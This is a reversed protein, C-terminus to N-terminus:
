PPLGRPTYMQLSWSPTDFSRVCGSRWLFQTPGSSGLPRRVSPSLSNAKPAFEPYCMQLTNTEKAGPVQSFWLSSHKHTVITSGLRVTSHIHVCVHTHIRTCMHACTAGTHISTPAHARCVHTRICAHAHVRLCVRTCMRPTHACTHQIHEGRPCQHTGGTDKLGVPGGAPSGPSPM